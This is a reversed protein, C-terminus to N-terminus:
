ITQKFSNILNNWPHGDMSGSADLAFIYHINSNKEEKKQAKVQSFPVFQLGKKKCYIPGAIMWAAEFVQKKTNKTLSIDDFM